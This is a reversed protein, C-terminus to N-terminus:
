EFDPYYLKYLTRIDIGCANCLHAVTIFKPQSVGREIRGIYTKSVNCYEACKERSLRAAKRYYKILKGFKINQM